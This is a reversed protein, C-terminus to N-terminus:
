PNLTDYNMQQFDLRTGECGWPSQSKPTNQTQKKPSGGNVNHIAPRALLRVIIGDHGEYLRDSFLQAGQFTHLQKSVNMAERAPHVASVGLLNTVSMSAKAGADVCSLIIVTVVVIVPEKLAVCTFGCLLLLSLM